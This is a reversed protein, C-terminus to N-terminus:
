KSLKKMIELKKDMNYLMKSEELFDLALSSQYKKKNKFIIKTKGLRVTFMFGKLFLPRWYPARELYKKDITLLLKTQKLWKTLIKVNRALQVLM